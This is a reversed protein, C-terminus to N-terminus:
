GQEGEITGAPDTSTTTAARDAACAAALAGRLSPVSFMLERTYPHEPHECVERTPGTELIQGQHMGAVRDCGHRVVSLDDSVFVLTLALDALLDTILNLV